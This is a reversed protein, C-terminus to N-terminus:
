IISISHSGSYILAFPPLYVYDSLSLITHLENVGESVRLVISAGEVSEVAPVNEIVALIDSLSPARGLPWGCDEDGGSLPHLYSELAGHVENKLETAMDLSRPKVHASVQCEVYAPGVVNIDDGLVPIAPGRERLYAEAEDRLQVPLEPKAESSRPVIVVTVNGPRGNGAADTEPFCKIIALGRFREKVLDEFDGVTLARDRHRVSSPGREFVTDLPELDEGGAAAIRNFVEDVFSVAGMIDAAARPPVNTSTGGGTRYSMAVNDRGIPPVCGRAGDGFCVLGTTPDLTFVRADPGTGLFTRVRRWPVWIEVPKGTVDIKVEVECGDDRLRKLEAEDVYRGENVYLHEEFVPTRSPAFSQGQSGDSSGLVEREVTSTGSSEVANLDIGRLTPSGGGAIAAASLKLSSLERCTPAKGEEGEAAEGQIGEGSQATPPFDNGENEGRLWYLVKGFLDVAKFGDPPKFALYGSRTLEQTGDLPTVPAWKGVDSSVSWKFDPRFDEAYLYNALLFYLSIPIGKLPKDFGLYIAQERSPLPNLLPARPELKRAALNEDVYVNEPVASEPKYSLTVSNYEPPTVSDPVIGIEYTPSTETISYVPKGYDGDALRARVWYKEHGNVKVRKIDDPVDFEIKPNAATLNNNNGYSTLPLEFWGDGNFYEWVVVPAEEPSPVSGGSFGINVTAGAKGFAEDSALYFTNGKVPVYGFPRLLPGFLAVFQVYAISVGPNSSPSQQSRKFVWTDLPMDNLFAMDPAVTIAGASDSEFPYFVVEVKECTGKIVDPATCTDDPVFVLTLWRSKVGALETEEVGEENAPYDFAVTLKGNEFGPEIPEAENEGIIATVTFNAKDVDADTTLEFSIKVRCKEKLDFLRSDGLHIKRIQKVLAPHFATTELGNGLDETHDYVVDAVGDASVVAALRAPSAAVAGTTEFLIADGQEDKGAGILTGAPVPIYDEPCDPNVAFVVPVKAPAAPLRDIELVKLFEALLVEPLGNYREIVREYIWFYLSFLVKGPDGADEPKWEPTYHPILSTVYALLEEAGRADLKPAEITMM